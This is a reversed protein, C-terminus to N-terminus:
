PMRSTLVITDGDVVFRGFGQHHITKPNKNAPNVWAKIGELVFLCYKNVFRTDVVRCEINAFCEAILPASVRAAKKPTLRFAAFKDVERGSCNGIAAVKEALEVSPIGIV